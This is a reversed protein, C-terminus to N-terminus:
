RLLVNFASDGYYPPRIASTPVIESMTVAAPTIPGIRSSQITRPVQNRKRNSRGAINQSVGFGRGASCGASYPRLM